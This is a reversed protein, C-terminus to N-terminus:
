KMGKKGCNSAKCFKVDKAKPGGNGGCTGVNCVIKNYNAGMRAQVQGAEFVLPLAAILVVVIPKLM